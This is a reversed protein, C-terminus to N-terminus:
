SRDRPAPGGSRGVYRRVIEKEDFPLREGRIEQYTEHGKNAIVVLDDGDARALARHIAKRRDVERHYAGTELEAVIEDIIAEPDESGPNDSTVIVEDARRVAVEGMLPRKGRDREGRAGFVLWIRGDAIQGCATLLAELGDPTHAYDRYVPCPRDSIRELRGPVQPATALRGAIEEVSLGRSLAVAAAALANAVNFEGVLPLVVEESGGPTCLTFESREASIRIDRATVDADQDRLGYTFLKGSDWMEAIPDWAPDDANVVVTGGDAVHRLLDTKAAHYREMTVFIDLHDRSFNTFAGVEFTLPEVRGYELGPATVEMAVSEVGERALERFMRAFEVRGPTTGTEVRFPLRRSDQLVAGLTGLAASPSDEHLLHRVLFTTTTKGNTGTIGILDLADWPDRYILKVAGKVGLERLIRGGPVDLLRDGVRYAFDRLRERGSESM